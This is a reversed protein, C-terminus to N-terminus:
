VIKNWILVTKLVKELDDKGGKKKEFFFIVWFKDCGLFEGKM